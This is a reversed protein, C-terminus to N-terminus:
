HLDEPYRQQKARKEQSSVVQFDMFCFLFTEQEQFALFQKYNDLFLKKWDESVEDTEKLKDQAKKM